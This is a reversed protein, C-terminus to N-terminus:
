ICVFLCWSQGSVSNRVETDAGRDLFLKVFDLKGQDTALFLPTRGASDTVALDAGKDLLLLAMDLDNNQVTFHLPTRLSSDAQQAGSDAGKALLAAAIERLGTMVAIHLATFGSQNRAETDAGSDLLAEVVEVSGRAAAVSLLATQGSKQCVAETNAGGKLLAQVLEASNKAVAILLATRGGHLADQTIPPACRLVVPCLPPPALDTQHFETMQTAACSYGCRRQAASRGRQFHAPAFLTCPCQAASGGCRVTAVAEAKAGHELLCSVMEVSKDAAALLLATRGEGDTADVDAGRSSLVARLVAPDGCRAAAHTLPQGSKDKAAVSAGKALLALSLASLRNAVATFLLTRGDQSSYLRPSSIQHHCSSSMITM